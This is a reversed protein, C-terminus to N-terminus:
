QYIMQLYITVHIPREPLVLEFELLIFFYSPHRPLAGGDDMRFSDGHLVWPINIDGTIGIGRIPIVESNRM